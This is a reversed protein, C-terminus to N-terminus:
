LKSLVGNWKIEVFISRGPDNIPLTSGQLSRNLHEHYTVDFMNNVGASLRVSNFVRTTLKVNTLLYGDTPQEDFSEAVRKQDAVGRLHLQPILKDNLFHYNLKINAEYAPIQPLDEHETLNRGITYATSLKYGLTTPNNNQLTWEFGYLAAEDV